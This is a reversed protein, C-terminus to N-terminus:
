STEKKYQEVVSEWLNRNIKPPKEVFEEFFRDVNERWSIIRNVKKELTKAASKSPLKDDLRCEIVGTNIAPRLSSFGIAININELPIDNLASYARRYAELQQRHKSANDEKKDTKWDVILYDNGSRFVADIVGKFHLDSDTQFIKSLPVIMKEEAKVFEPYSERIQDLLRIINEKHPQIEPDSQEDEGRCLKQAVEHVKSGLSMARSGQQANIIRQYFYEFPDDKLSSFSLHDINEFHNKVYARIWADKEHLLKKSQAFDDNLFLSYARKERQSFTEEAKEPNLNGEESFSNLYRDPKETVICLESRARTLAVFDIRLDEEEFSNGSDPNKLKLIATVVDDQFNSREPTKKPAYIVADFERGKAKHVTTLTLREKENEHGEPFLESAKLFDMINDLTLSDLTKLSEQYAEQMRLASLLYEKGYAVAVPLIRTKFLYNVDETNKVLERLERFGPFKEFVDVLDLKKEESLRFADQISCPFFPTMMAQKVDSVDHSLVGRIFTIITRKADESASFFTSSFPIGRNKLERSISMVQDNTRGIIAVSEYKKRLEQVLSLVAPSLEKRDIEYVKPKEKSAEEKNRLNKLEESYSKERTNELFFNKAYDLIKNSSRFNESLIKKDGKEFYKFNLISGGQFGFIAQKKDGVAFFNKGSKLAIEAQILNADQLEDILVFDFEEKKSNVHNLLEILIDQFDMGKKVKECYRFTEVFDGAFKDIEQKTYKDTEELLGRVQEINIDEPKVNFSKLYKFLTQTKPVFQEILYEDPYDLMGNEKMYRFISYRMPDDSLSEETATVENAYAHFTYVKMKSLELSIGQEAIIKGIRQEIERRAKRTFTLCLIKEPDIGENILDAYKYALLLTKGTGPNATVLVSGRTKIIDEKERNLKM